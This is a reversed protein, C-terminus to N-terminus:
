EEPSARPGEEFWQINYVSTGSTNANRREEPKPM